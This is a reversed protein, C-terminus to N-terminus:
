LINASRWRARMLKPYLDRQSGIISLLSFYEQFEDVRMWMGTCQINQMELPMKLGKLYPVGIGWAFCPYIQWSPGQPFASFFAMSLVLGRRKWLFCSHSLESLLQLSVRAHTYISTCICLEMFVSEGIWNCKDCYTGLEWDFQPFFYRTIKSSKTVPKAWPLRMGALNM